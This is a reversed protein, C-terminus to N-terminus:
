ACDASYCAGMTLHVRKAISSSRPNGVTTSIQKIGNTEILKQFDQGVCTNRIDSIVGGPKTYCCLWKSDFLLAGHYSSKHNM